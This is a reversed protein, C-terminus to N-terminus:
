ASPSGPSGNRVKPHDRRLHNPNEFGAGKAASIERLLDVQLEQIDLLKELNQKLLHDLKEGIHRIELEAKLNVKYDNEARRRDRAEQRNQSMMIIPAQIAALCSLILNLLIFPYPDFPRTALVTLNLFVWSMILAFFGVIFGWSGGFAAMQDSLREGFGLKVEPEFEGRETILEQDHLSRLVDEELATLEGIESELLDRVYEARYDNLVRAPIESHENLDPHHRLIFEALRPRLLALDTLDGEHTEVGSPARRGRDKGAM